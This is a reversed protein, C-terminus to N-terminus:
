CFIPLVLWILTLAILEGRNSCWIILNLFLNFTEVWWMMHLESFGLVKMRYTWGTLATDWGAVWAAWLLQLHGMRPPTWPWAQHVGPCLSRTAALVAWPLPTPVLHDKLYRGVQWEITRHCKLSLRSVSTLYPERVVAWFIVFTVLGETRKEETNEHLCM